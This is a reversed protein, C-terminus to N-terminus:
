CAVWSDPHANKECVGTVRAVSIETLYFGWKSGDLCSSLHLQPKKYYGHLHILALPEPAPLAVLLFMPLLPPLLVRLFM